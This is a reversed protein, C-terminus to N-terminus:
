SPAHPSNCQLSRRSRSTGIMILDVDDWGHPCSRVERDHCSANDCIMVSQPLPWACECLESLSVVPRKCLSLLPENETSCSLFCFIQVEGGYFLGSVSRRRCLGGGIAGATYEM